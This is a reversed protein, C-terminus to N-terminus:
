SRCPPRNSGSRQAPGHGDRADSVHRTCACSNCTCPSPCASVTKGTKGRYCAKQTCIKAESKATRNRYAQPKAPMQMGPMNMDMQAAAPAALVFAAATAAAAGALLLKM